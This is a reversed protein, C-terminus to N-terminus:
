KIDSAKRRMVFSRNFRTGATLSLIRRFGEQSYFFELTANVKIRIANQVVENKFITPRSLVPIRQVTLCEPPAQQIM